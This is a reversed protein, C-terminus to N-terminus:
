SKLASAERGSPKRETGLVWTLCGATQLEEESPHLAKKKDRLACACIYCLTMSTCECVYIFFLDKFSISILSSGCM